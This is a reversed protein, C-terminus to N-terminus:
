ETLPAYATAPGLGLAARFGADRCRAPSDLWIVRGGGNLYQALGQACAEPVVYVSAALVLDYRALQEAGAAVSDGIVEFGLGRDALWARLPEQYIGHYEQSNAESEYVALRQGRASSSVALVGIVLVAIRM